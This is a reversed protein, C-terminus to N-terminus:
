QAPAAAAGPMRVVRVGGGGRGSGAGGGPRARGRGDPGAHAGYKEFDARMDALLARYTADDPELRVAEEMHGLATDFEGRSAELCAYNFHRSAITPDFRIAARCHEAAGAVDEFHHGLLAGLNAHVRGVAPDDDRGCALACEYQRRAQDHDEFHTSLLKALNNRAPVYLPDWAVAAEHADKAERYFGVASLCQGLLDHWKVDGDDGDSAEALAVATRLPDIAGKPDGNLARAKGLHYWADGDGPLLRVAEALHAAAEDYRTELEDVLLAGLDRRAAGNEPSSEVLSELGAITAAVAVDHSIGVTKKPPEAPPASAPKASSAFTVDDDDAAAAAARHRRYLLVAVAAGAVGTGLALWRSARTEMKAAERM